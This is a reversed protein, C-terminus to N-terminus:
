YFSFGSLAQEQVELKWCQVLTYRKQQKFWWIQQINDNCGFCLFNYAFCCVKITSSKLVITLVYFLFIYSCALYNHCLRM